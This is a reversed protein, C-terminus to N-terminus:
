ASDRFLRSISQPERRSSRLLRRRHCQAVGLRHGFAKQPARRNRRMLAFAVVDVRIGPQALGHRRREVVLWGPIRAVAVVPEFLIHRDCGIEAEVAMADADFPGPDLRFRPQERHGFEIAVAAQQLGAMSAAQRRHDGVVVEGHRAPERHAAAELDGIASIQERAECLPCRGPETVQDAIGRGEVFGIDLAQDCLKSPARLCLDRDVGHQGGAGLSRAGVRKEDSSKAGTSVLSGIM